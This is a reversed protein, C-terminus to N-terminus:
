GEGTKFIESPKCKRPDQPIFPVYSRLLEINDKIDEEVCPEGVKIRNGAYRIRGFAEEILHHATEMIQEYASVYELRTDNFREIFNKVSRCKKIEEEIVKDKPEDRCVALVMLVLSLPAMVYEVPNYVSQGPANRVLVVCTVKM